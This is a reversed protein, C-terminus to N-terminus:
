LKKKRLIIDSVVNAEVFKNKGYLMCRLNDLNYRCPVHGFAVMEEFIKFAFNDLNCACFCKLLIEYSYKNPYVARKCMTCSLSLANLLRGTNCLGRLLTNCVINDPAVGDANMKNFIEIASDIDGSMIHGQILITYTVQNACLGKSQMLEFRDYAEQMRDTRCFGSIITNYLHLNPTSMSKEIDHILKVAFCKMEESTSLSVRLNNEELLLNRQLISYLMERERESKVNRCKKRINNINGYAGRLMTLYLVSDHEENILKLLRYGFELDGNKLFNGMVSTIFVLNPKFGDTLMRRLYMCGKDILDIKILGSILVTYSQLSPQISNEIMTEFWQQAETARGNKLCGNIMTMYAVEDPDVGALLMRKFMSEAELIRRGLCLCRLITNYVAVGPKIGRDEMHDLVNFASELDNKKCHEDVLILYTVQDPVMGQDKMRDILSNVGEFLGEQSLRKILINYIFLGPRCGHSLMTELCHFVIELEESMCLACIYTSFAVTGLNLDRKVIEDLLVHIEELLQQSCNPSGSTSLASPDIQCGINKAIDQLIKLALQLETGKLYYKTLVFYMVHDPAVGNDMMDKYLADAENWKNEKKLADILVTYSHVSPTVNCNVMISLIKLAAPISKGERCYWNLMMGFTVADPKMGWRTMQNYIIWGKDLMGLKLFGHILTNCTYNDPECGAKLMRLFIRMAMKMRKSTCYGHILSTYMIKDIYLDQSEMELSLLEAKVTLGRRCLGYFLTKYLHVTPICGYVDHMADLLQLAEDVYGKVCLGEILVNFSWFGLFLGADNIRVFCSFAELIKERCCLERILTNCAVKCPITNLIFLRDFHSRAEDLKGLKCFSIIMSNLISPNHDGGIGSINEKYISEALQHQGYTVLKRILAGCTDLDLDLGSTSAYRSVSMADSVSSSQMIMKQMVHQASSLLGRGTLEEILSFCPFIHSNGISSPSTTSDDLPSACSTVKRRTISFGYYIRAWKKTM